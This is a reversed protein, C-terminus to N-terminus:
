ISAFGKCSKILLFTGFQTTHVFCKCSKIFFFEGFQKTHVFGKWSKILLFAGFHKTHVFAKWSKILFFYWVTYRPCFITLLCKYVNFARKFYSATTCIGSRVFSNTTFVSALLSPIPTQKSWFCWPVKNWM